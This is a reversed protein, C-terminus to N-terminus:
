TTVVATIREKYLKVARGGIAKRVAKNDVIEGSAERTVDEIMAAIVVPIAQFDSPNGIKDLVHTLRMPTVWEEAIAEADEMLQRQTPDVNPITKRESFEARKHKAILRSGNNLTVEFPPRIVIGEAACDEIIGNRKAQTSPKDRLADLAAVDSVCKEFHVFELGANRAAEDAQPVALWSNGVKVDFVVFRLQEGYTKRMGQCTGGYAEGFFTVPTVAFAERCHHAIEEVHPAITGFIAAYRDAREGGHHLHIQGDSWRVNASTGHIKELAWLWRFELIRQAEPRYLNEIHLYGM